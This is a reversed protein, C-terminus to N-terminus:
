DTKLNSFKVPYFKPIYTSILIKEVFKEDYIANFFTPYNTLIIDM